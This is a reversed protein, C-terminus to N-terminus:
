RKKFNTMPKRLDAPDIRADDLVRHQAVIKRANITELANGLKEKGTNWATFLRDGVNGMEDFMCPDINGVAAYLAEIEDETFSVRM